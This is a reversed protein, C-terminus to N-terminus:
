QEQMDELDFEEGIVDLKKNDLSTNKLPMSEILLPQMSEISESIKFNIEKIELEEPNVELNKQILYNTCKLDVVNLWFIVFYFYIQGVIELTEENQTVQFGCLFM